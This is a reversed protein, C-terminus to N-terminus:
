NTQEQKLKKLLNEAFVKLMEISIDQKMMNAKYSIVWVNGKVYGLKPNIKDISPTNPTPHNMNNSFFLDIGLLPCKEPIVIDTIDIDFPINKIKARQKVRHWMFKEPENSRTEFHWKKSNESLQKKKEETKPKNNHFTVRCSNSCFYSDSRGSLENGCQKCNNILRQKPKYM